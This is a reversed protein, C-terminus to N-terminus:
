GDGGETGKFKLADPNSPAVGVIRQILWPVAPVRHAVISRHFNM